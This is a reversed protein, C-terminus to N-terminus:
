ALHPPARVAYYRTINKSTFGKALLEPQQIQKVFPASQFSHSVANDFPQSGICYDCIEGATHEHYVHDISGWQSLLLIATFIVYHLRKM